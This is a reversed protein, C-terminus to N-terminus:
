TEYYIPKVGFQGGWIKCSFQEWATISTNMVRFVVDKLCTWTDAQWLKSETITREWYKDAVFSKFTATVTIVQTWEEDTETEFIVKWWQLKLVNFLSIYTRLIYYCHKSFTIDPKKGSNLSANSEDGQKEDVCLKFLILSNSCNLELQINRLIVPIFLLLNRVPLVYTMLTWQIEELSLSCVLAIVSCGIFM